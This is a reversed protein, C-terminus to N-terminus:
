VEFCLVQAIQSQLGRGIIAALIYRIGLVAKVIMTDGTGPLYSVQVLFVVKVILTDGTSPLYSYAM